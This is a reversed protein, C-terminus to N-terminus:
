KNWIGLKNERAYSQAASLEKNLLTNQRESKLTVLGTKLLTENYSTNGASYVYAYNVNNVTKVNDFAIKVKKNLLDSRIKEYTSSKSYKYDIGILAIDLTDGDIELSIIGSDSIKTVNVDKSKNYKTLTEFYKSVTTVPTKVEETVKTEEKKEEVKVEQKEEVVTENTKVSASTINVSQAIEKAYASSSKSTQSYIFIGSGMLILSIISVIVAPGYQKMYFASKNDYYM